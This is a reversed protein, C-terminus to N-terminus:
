VFRLKHLNLFSVCVFLLIQWYHHDMVNIVAVSTKKM